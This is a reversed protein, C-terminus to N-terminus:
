IVKGVSIAAVMVPYAYMFLLGAFLGLYIWAGALMRMWAAQATMIARIDIWLILVVALNVAGLVVARVWFRTYGRWLERFGADERHVALNGFYTIAASLPAVLVVALPLAWMVVGAATVSALTAFYWVISTVVVMGMREYAITASKSLVTLAYAPTYRESM